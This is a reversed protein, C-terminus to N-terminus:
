EGTMRSFMNDLCIEYEGTQKVDLGHLGDMSHPEMVMAKGSPDNVVFNIDM